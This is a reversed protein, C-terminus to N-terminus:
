ITYQIKTQQTREANHDGRKPNLSRLLEGVRKKINIYLNTLNKGRITESLSHDIM